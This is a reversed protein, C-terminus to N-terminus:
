LNSMHQGTDSIINGAFYVDVDNTDLHTNDHCHGFTFGIASVIYQKGNKAQWRWSMHAM